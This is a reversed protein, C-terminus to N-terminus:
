YTQIPNFGHRLKKQMDCTWANKMYVYGKKEIKQYETTITSKQKDGERGKKSLRLMAGLRLGVGDWFGRRELADEELGVGKWMWNQSSFPQWSKKSFKELRPMWESHQM